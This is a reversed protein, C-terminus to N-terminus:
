LIPLSMTDSLDEQLDAEFDMLKKASDTQMSFMGAAYLPVSIPFSLLMLLTLNIKKWGRHDGLVTLAEKIYASCRERFQSRKEHDLPETVQLLSATENALQIVLTKAIDFANIYNDKGNAIKSAIENCKAQICDYHEIFHLGLLFRHSPEITSQNDELLYTYLKKFVSPHEVMAYALVNVYAENSIDKLLEKQQAIDLTLANLLLKEGLEPHYQLALALANKGRAEGVRIKLAIDAGHKLLADVIGAHGNKVAMMLATYDDADRQNLDIPLTLLTNVAIEKGYKAALMLASMDNAFKTQTAMHLLMETPFTKLAESDHKLAYSCADKSRARRFIAEQDTRPLKAIMPLVRPPKSKTDLRVYQETKIEQKLLQKKANVALLAQSAAEPRIDYAQISEEIAKATMEVCFRSDRYNSHNPRRLREFLDGFQPYTTLFNKRTAKPLADWFQFFTVIGINAKVGSDYTKGGKKEGGARLDVVLRNLQGIIEQSHFRLINYAQISKMYDAVLVSHNSLRKEENYSLLDYTEIDESVMHQFDSEDSIIAHALCKEIPIFVKQDDSLIFENLGFHHINEGYVDASVRLSPMLLFYPGTLPPLQDIKSEEDPLPSLTKALDLCMLNVLNWPKETYCMSSHSIREWRNKLFQTLQHVLLEDDLATTLCSELEDLSLNNEFKDIEDETHSSIKENILFRLTEIQALLNQVTEKHLITMLTPSRKYLPNLVICQPNYITLVVM